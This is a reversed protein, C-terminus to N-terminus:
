RQGSAASASIPEPEDLSFDDMDKSGNSSTSYRRLGYMAEEERVAFLSTMLQAHIAYFVPVLTLVLATSAILGFILSTAMPIIVQAQFSREFLIPSLGAVTTVSTLLIPRFRRQGASVLAENLPVGRDVESNIFDVLVISDNVVVGVLAILGFLSFMTLDLGMLYHGMVAGFVSFPIVSMIIAPQLYSRFELTLLIFMALLAVMLGTMMSKISDNTEQQDGQWDVFLLAGQKEYKKLLQPLFDQKMESVIADATVNQNRDVDASITVSRKGNLRNIVSPAKTYVIEAVDRLPREINQSDRVRVDELAALSQRESKPYRVMLKVENRGRQLRMVEEGFYGSRIASALTQEDLGLSRGQENLKLNVESKGARDDDEIDYVGAKKALYAKCEETAATLSLAGSETALLKFEISKGGPGMSRSGFTLLETGVIKPTKKRWRNIIEDSRVRRQNTPVLQVSISAVHSGDTVGTPGSFMDGVEGLRRYVTDVVGHGTEAKIERDVEAISHEISEAAKRTVDASTGDPFAVTATISRSDLKPFAEFPTIGSAVFGGAILLLGIASSVVVAKNRLSWRIYPTYLRDVFLALLRDAHVNVWTSLVYLPKFVYLIVGLVRIFLNRHHALHVPLVFIAELLSVLLMAIVVVPMVAIFKGMIGSIFLLPLFAIVTTLVSATVSPFVEYTGDIAATLFDKGMQRHSYINEGIVIADDVVIGLTMLFAFMTLMNLTQGTM